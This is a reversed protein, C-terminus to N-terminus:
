KFLNTEFKNLQIFIEVERIKLFLVVDKYKGLATM